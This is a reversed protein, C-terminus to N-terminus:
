QAARRCLIQYKLASHSLTVEEIHYRLSRARLYNGAAPTFGVHAVDVWVELDYKIDGDVDQNAKISESVYGSFTRDVRTAGTVVGTTPNYSGAVGSLLEYIVDEHNPAMEVVRAASFGSDDYAIDVRFYAGLETLLYDGPQLAMSRPATLFFRGVMDGSQLAYDMQDSAESRLELDYYIKGEDSAVLPGLNDGSGATAYRILDGKLNTRHLARARDYINVQDVDTRNTASIIYITGTATHLIVLDDPLTVSSTIGLTERRTPRHYITKFRDFVYIRGNFGTSWTDTGQDWVQFEEGHFYSAALSLRSLASM